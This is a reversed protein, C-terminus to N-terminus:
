NKDGPQFGPIDRYIQGRWWLMESEIDEEIKNSQLIGRIWDLVFSDKSAYTDILEWEDAGAQNHMIKYVAMAFDNPVNSPQTFQSTM